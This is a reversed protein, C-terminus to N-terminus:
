DGVGLLGGRAPCWDSGLSGVPFGHRLDPRVHSLNAEAAEIDAIKTTNAPHRAADQQAVHISFIPENVKLVVVALPFLPSNVKEDGSHKVPRSLIAIDNPVQVAVVLVVSCTVEGISSPSVIVIVTRVSFNQYIIFEPSIDLGQLPSAVTL